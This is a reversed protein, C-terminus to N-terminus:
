YLQLAPLLLVNTTVSDNNTM